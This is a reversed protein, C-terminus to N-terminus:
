QSSNLKAVLSRVAEVLRAGTMAYLVGNIFTTPAGTIGYIISQHYEKLIQDRYTNSAMERDFRELDLGVERAHRQLARDGLKDPHLFLVEHMEWFKGQAAAAEAAEAAPLARPHVNVLPFHRYVLRITGFLQHAMKIVTQHVHKCDPSEYDGYTVVTVKADNAGRVHDRETVPQKLTIPDTDSL